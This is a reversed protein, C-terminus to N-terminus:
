VRRDVPPAAPQALALSGALSLVGALILTRM